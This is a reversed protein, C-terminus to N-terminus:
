ILSAGYALAYVTIAGRMIVHTTHGLGSGVSFHEVNLAVFFALRKGDPWDFQPREVIPSYDYRDHEDM